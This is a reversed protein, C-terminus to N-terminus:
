GLLGVEIRKANFQLCGRDFLDEFVEVVVKAHLVHLANALDELDIALIDLQTTDITVVVMGDRSAKDVIGGVFLVDSQHLLSVDIEQACRVIRITFVEILEAVAPADIDHVFGVLFGMAIAIGIALHTLIPCPLTGMDVPGFRQYLAVEVVGADDEPTQAVLTPYARVNLGHVVGYASQIRRTQWKVITMGAVRSEM